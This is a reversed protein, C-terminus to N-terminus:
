RSAPAPGRGPRFYGTNDYFAADANAPWWGPVGLVPLPALERPESAHTAVARAASADALETLEDDDADVAGDPVHLLLAHGSMGVYPALAKEYLGHGLLLFRTTRLLRARGEWFLRKWAFARVLGLVAADSSLVLVGSEDLLTLADRRSGRGGAVARTRLQAAHARNIAAKTRAFALWACANFLDHWNAARLPVVGADHTRLEYDAAAPATTGSLAEFRLPRGGGSCVGRQAALANLEQPAPWSGAPFCDVVRRLPAFMPTRMAFLPDWAMM